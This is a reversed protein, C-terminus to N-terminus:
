MPTFNLVRNLYAQAILRQKDHTECLAAWALPYNHETIQFKNVLSLAPGKLNTILYHFKKTATLSKDEHIISTFVDRFKPWQLIEGDFCILKIHPLQSSVNDHVVTTSELASTSAASPTYGPETLSTYITKIEYYSKRMQTEDSSDAETPFELNDDEEALIALDNFADEYYGYYKELVSYM